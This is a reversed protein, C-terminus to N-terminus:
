GCILVVVCAVRQDVAFRAECGMDKSYRMLDVAVADAIGGSECDCDDAAEESYGDGRGCGLSSGSRDCDFSIGAAM